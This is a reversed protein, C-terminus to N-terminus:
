FGGSGGSPNVAKNQRKGRLELVKHRVHPSPDNELAQLASALQPSDVTHLVHLAAIRTYEFTAALDQLAIEEAERPAFLSFAMLSRRRVYENDDNLFPRILDAANPLEADAVSVVIQWKADADSCKTAYAALTSLVDTTQVLHDRIHEAENDRALVFLLDEAVDPSLERGSHQDISSIAATWLQPWHEYDCEWEGHRHDIPPAWDKFRNIEDHLTPM